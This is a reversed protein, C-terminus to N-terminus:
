FYGNYNDLSIRNCFKDREGFLFYEQPARYYKEITPMKVYSFNNKALNITYYQLVDYGSLYLNM